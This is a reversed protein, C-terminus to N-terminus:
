IDRGDSRCQHQWLTHRCLELRRHCQGREVYGDRGLEDGTATGFALDVIVGATANIYSVRTDGNGIITDNGGLGDFENLANGDRDSGASGFNPGNVNTTTFGTADYIDDFHTGRAAEISRLTDTGVSADGVVTGAALNITIGGTVNDDHRFDYLVRDFGGRGDIFDNGPGGDFVEPGAFNNSGSLTDGFASGRVVQIGGFFTDTGIGADAGTAHAVGTSNPIGITPSDLAVTVPASANAYSVTTGGNGTISDDGGMGQFENFTPPISGFASAGAYNTAVYSDNSASGQILEVSVLTDSGIGAGSVTGAQMNVTIPGSAGTYIVRDIGGRGDFNDNGPDSAVIVDDFGSGRVSNVGTFTDTGVDAVDGAATGHSNGTGAGIFTM